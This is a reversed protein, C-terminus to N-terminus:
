KGQIFDLVSKRVELPALRFDNEVAPRYLVYDAKALKERRSARREVAKLLRYDKNAFHYYFRRNFHTGDMARGSERLTPVEYRDLYYWYQESGDGSRVYLHIIENGVLYATVEYGTRGRHITYPGKVEVYAQQDQILSDIGNAWADIQEPTALQEGPLWIDELVPKMAMPPVDAVPEVVYDDGSSGCAALVGLFIMTLISRWDM